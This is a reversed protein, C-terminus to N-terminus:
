KSLQQPSAPPSPTTPGRLHFLFMIMLCPHNESESRTWCTTNAQAWADVAGSLIQYMKIEDVLARLMEWHAKQKACDRAIHGVERCFYCRRRDVRNSTTEDNPSDRLRM